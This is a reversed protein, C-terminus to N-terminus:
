TGYLSNYYAVIRAFDYKDDFRLKNSRIYKEVDEAKRGMKDLLDNRNGTFEAIDGKDDLFFYKNVLELRTFSGGYFGYNYTRYELAERALLTMRGEELLEFFVPTRYSGAASYPLAFFQRYKKISLDFIEFFLVKRATFAEVKEQRSTYEVLDQQVSYKVMGKLTDGSTLVIQGDHWLEFAFNQAFGAPSHFILLLAISASAFWNGTVHKESYEDRSTMNNRSFVTGWKIGKRLSIVNM